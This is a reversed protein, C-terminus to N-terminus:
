ITGVARTRQWVQRRRSAAAAYQRQLRPPVVQSRLCCVIQTVGEVAVDVPAPVASGYSVLVVKLCSGADQVSRVLARFLALLREFCTADDRYQQYMDSTDLVLFTCPVCAYLKGLLHLWEEESHDFAYKAAQLLDPHRTFFEPSKRLAQHVLTKLTNTLPTVRDRSTHEALAFFVQNPSSRLLKILDVSVTKSLGESRANARLILLSSSRKNFWRDLCRHLEAQNLVHVRGQNRKATAQVRLFVEEPDKEPSLSQLIASAQLDHIRPQMDHIRPQIDDMGVCIRESLSKSSNATTYIATLMDKFDVVSGLKTQMDIMAAAFGELRAGQTQVSIHVDRLEAGMATNSRDKLTASCYRIQEVINKYSLAYPHLISSFARKLPHRTYWKVAKRCFRMIQLYLRSTINQMDDTQYMMCSDSASKLADGIEAFAEALKM